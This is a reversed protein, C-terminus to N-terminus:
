INVVAFENNPIQLYFNFYNGSVYASIHHSADGNWLFSGRCLSAPGARVCQAASLKQPLWLDGAHAGPGLVVTRCYLRESAHRGGAGVATAAVAATGCGAAAATGCGAPAATGM